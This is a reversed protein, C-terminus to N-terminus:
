EENHCRKNTFSTLLDHVFSFLGRRVTFLDHLLSTQVCTVSLDHMFKLKM